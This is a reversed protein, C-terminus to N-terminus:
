IVGDVPDPWSAIVECADNLDQANNISWMRGYCYLTGIGEWSSKVANSTDVWSVEYIVNGVTPNLELIQLM